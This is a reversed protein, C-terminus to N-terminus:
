SVKCHKRFGPAIATEKLFAFIDNTESGTSEIIWSGSGNVIFACGASNGFTFLSPEKYTSLTKDAYLAGIQEGELFVPAQFTIQLRGSSGIYADSYGGQGMSLATEEFPLSAADVAEGSSDTGTGNLDIYFFRYFDTAEVYNALISTSQASGGRLAYLGAFSDLREEDNRFLRHISSQIMRTSNIMRENSGQDMKDTIRNLLSLMFITSFLLLCVVSILISVSRKKYGKM